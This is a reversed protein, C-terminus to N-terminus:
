RASAARCPTARAVTSARSLRAQSRAPTSSTPQDPRSNASCDIDDDGSREGRGNGVTVEIRDPIAAAFGYVVAEGTLHITAERAGLVEIRSFLAEAVMRRGPGGAAKKCITPLERLYRVAVDAPAGDVERPSRAEREEEGSSGISLHM